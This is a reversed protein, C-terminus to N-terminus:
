TSAHVTAKVLSACGLARPNATAYSLTAITAITAMRTRAAVSILRYIPRIGAQPEALATLSARGSASFTGATGAGPMGAAAVAAVSVLLTLFATRVHGFYVARLDGPSIAWRGVQRVVSGSVRALCRPLRRTPV